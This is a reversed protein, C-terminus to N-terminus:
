KFNIYSWGECHRLIEKLTQDTDFIFDVNSFVYILIQYYPTFTEEFSKLKEHKPFYISFM